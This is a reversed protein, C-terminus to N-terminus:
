RMQTALEANAFVISQKLRSLRTASTEIRGPPIRGDAVASKVARHFQLPTWPDARGRNSYMFLDVGADVGLRAAEDPSFHNRLAGMQMDDSIVVGDYGLTQRLLGTVTRTSLSTPRGPETLGAHVMHGVMVMDAFGTNTLEIYPRLEEKRWTATVDPLDRHPDEPTSGLGPFHKLATLVHNERHAQIFARAYDTVKRPDDGFSRGAGFIVRSDENAALDVVPGLNLNFGLRRLEAAMRGYAAAAQDLPRAAVEAASPPSTFGNEPRLRSVAGGEQDICFFPTSSGAAAAFFQTLAKAAPPNPLNDEYFIVGGVLGARLWEAVARAGPADPADGFFGVVIMDGIRRDPAGTDPEAWARGIGARLAPLLLAATLLDRRRIKPLSARMPSGM